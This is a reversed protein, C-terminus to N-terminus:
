LVDRLQAGSSAILRALTDAATVDMAPSSHSYTDMTIADDLPRVTRSRGEPARRSAAGADGLTHRLGDLSLYPMHHRAVAERFLNSVVKPHLQRGDACCFVLREDVYEM